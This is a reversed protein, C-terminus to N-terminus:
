LKMVNTIQLDLKVLNGNFLIAVRCRSSSPQDAAVEGERGNYEPRNILNIIRVRQGAVLGSKLPPVEEDNIRCYTNVVPLNRESKKGFGFDSSSIARRVSLFVIVILVISGITLYVVPNDWFENRGVNVYTTANVHTHKNYTKSSSVVDTGCTKTFEFTDPCIQYCSQKGTARDICYSSDTSTYNQKITQDKYNSYMDFISNDNTCKLSISLSYEGDVKGNFAYKEIIYNDKWGARSEYLTGDSDFYAWTKFKISPDKIVYWEDCLFRNM